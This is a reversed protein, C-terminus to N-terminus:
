LRRARLIFMRGPRTPDLSIWIVPMKADWVTEWAQGGNTSSLILGGGKDISADALTDIHATLLCDALLM